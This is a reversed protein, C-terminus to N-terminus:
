EETDVPLELPKKVEPMVPQEETSIPKIRKKLLSPAMLGPTYDEENFTSFDILTIREQVVTRSSAKPTAVKTEEAVAPAPLAEESTPNAERPTDAEIKVPNLPQVEPATKDAGFILSLGYLLILVAGIGLGILFYRMMGGGQNQIRQNELKQDMDSWDGATIEFTHDELTKRWNAGENNQENLAM